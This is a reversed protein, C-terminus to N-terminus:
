YAAYPAKRVWTLDSLQKLMFEALDARSLTMGKPPLGDFEVRYRGVAPGNTLRPPLVLTYDLGSAEVQQQQISSNIFPYKLLTRKLLRLFFRRFATAHKGADRYAGAAGLVILRRVGHRKMGAIINASSKPLLDNPGLTRAGLATFVADQGQSAAAVQEPDFVDGQIVRLDPAASFSAPNRVFASVQHGATLGQRVLEHGTAGSAGFVLIKM